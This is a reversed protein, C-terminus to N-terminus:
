IRNYSRLKPQIRKYTDLKGAEFDALASLEEQEQPGVKARFLYNFAIQNLEKNM